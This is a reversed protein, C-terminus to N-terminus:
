VHARSWPPSAPSLIWRNWCSTLRATVFPNSTATYSGARTIASSGVAFRSECVARCIMSRMPSIWRWWPVVKMKEVWSWRSSSRTSRRIWRLSPHMDADWSPWGHILPDFDGQAVDAFVAAGTVGSRFPYGNIKQGDVDCKKLFSAAFAKQSEGVLNIVFKRSVKIEKYIRGDRKLGMMIRPPELGAQSLWTVIAATHTDRAFASVIYVGYSLARMAARKATLDM